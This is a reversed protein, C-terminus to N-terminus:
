FITIASYILLLCMIMNIIRDYKAFVKKFTAGCLAWLLLAACGILITVCMFFLKAENSDHYPLIFTSMATLFYLISKVNLIQFLLGAFFSSRSNTDTGEAGKSFAMQWALYLLYAAGAAKLYPEAMPIWQYLSATLLSTGIGLMIFGSVIGMNFPASGKFGYRRATNMVLLNSPGPTISTIIIYLLFATLNM